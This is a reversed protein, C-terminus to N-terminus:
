NAQIEVMLNYLSRSLCTCNGKIYHLLFDLRSPLQLAKLFIKKSCGVLMDVWVRGKTLRQVATVWNCCCLKCFELCIGCRENMM